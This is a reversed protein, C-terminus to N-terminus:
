KGSTLLFMSMRTHWTDATQLLSRVLNIYIIQVAVMVNNSYLRCSIKRTHTYVHEYTFAVSRCNKYCRVGRVTNDLQVESM